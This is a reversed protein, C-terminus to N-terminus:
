EYRLAVLPDVKTARKAPIYCALFAVTILAAAVVGFTTLDTSTVGFLLTALFRTLAYAAGLGVAVGLIVLAMGKSVILRLVDMAQAGLAMRVGIEHTRSVVEYSMVGYLGICALLLALVSFFGSLKALLREQVLAGDLMRPMTQIYSIELKKDVAQIEQRITTVLATPPATTRIVLV